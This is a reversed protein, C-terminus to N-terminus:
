SILHYSYLATKYTHYNCSFRGFTVRAMLEIPLAEPEYGSRELNSGQIAWWDVRLM